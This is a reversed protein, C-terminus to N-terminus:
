KAGSGLVEYARNVVEELCGKEFPSKLGASRVLDQFSAEGGRKCLSIYDHVAKDFHEESKIWFQFACCLALTYDIYYFPTLYLHGTLQWRGGKAAYTLDHWNRWPLYTKELEKWIAHRESPFTKPNAYVLHQFHDVAVGYPLWLLWQALNIFQFDRAGKEGFFKELYPWTLFELSMSHVECSDFTPMQYDLLPQHRSCYMQFAHGMEHTFVRIDELTGNFNAFIHPVGYSPFYSCMGGYAKGKRSKLDLLRSDKMFRFFSGMEKELGDFMGIAREILWDYEGLPKPNGEPIFLPEDYAYLKELGLKKRQKERITNALPVVHQIVECRYHEVDEQNYDIRKMKKYALDIYNNYGLKIAMDTRLHVLKDFISDLPEGNELFWNWLVKQSNHRLQREPEETFKQIESLNYVEGNFSLQASATLETYRSMLNAEVVLDDAIAPDFTMIDAEWLSTIHKGYKAQIDNRIPPKLLKRKMGIELDTLKPWLDNRYELNNKFQPNSTDQNFRLDVLHYWTYLNRCLQDWKQVIAIRQSGNASKLDIELNNYESAVQEFTPNTVAIKNFDFIEVESNPGLHQKM